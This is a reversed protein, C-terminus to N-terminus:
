GDPGPENPWYIQQQGCKGCEKWAYGGIRDWTDGKKDTTFLRHWCATFLHFFRHSFSSPLTSETLCRCSRELGIPGGYWADETILGRVAQVWSVKTKIRGYSEWRVDWRQQAEALALSDSGRQRM